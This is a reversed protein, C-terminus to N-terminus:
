TVWALEFESVSIGRVGGGDRTSPNSIHVIMGPLSCDKEFLQTGSTQAPVSTLLKDELCVVALWELTGM